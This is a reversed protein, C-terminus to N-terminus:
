PQHLCLHCCLEQVLNHILFATVQGNAGPLQPKEQLLTRIEDYPNDLNTKDLTYHIAENSYEEFLTAYERRKEPVFLQRHELEELRWRVPGGGLDSRIRRILGPNEDFYELSAQHPEKEFEKVFDDFVLPPM